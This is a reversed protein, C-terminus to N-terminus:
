RSRAPATYLAYFAAPVLAVISFIGITFIVAVLGVISTVLWGWARARASSIMLGIVSVVSGFFNGAVFVINLLYFASGTAIATSGTQAYQLLLVLSYGVVCLMGLAAFGFIVPHPIRPTTVPAPPAAVPAQGWQAPYGAPPYGPAQAPPYGPAPPYWAPSYGHPPPASAAPPAPPALPAMMKRIFGVTTAIGGLITVVSAGLNITDTLTEQM